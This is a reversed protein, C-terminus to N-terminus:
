MPLPAEFVVTFVTYLGFALTQAILGLGPLQKRNPEILIGGIAMVYLITLWRFDGWAFSLCVVYGLTFATSWLARPERFVPRFHRILVALGALGAFLGWGDFQASLAGLSLCLILTLGCIFQLFHSGSQWAWGVLFLAVAMMVFKQMDPVGEPQTFEVQAIQAETEALQEELEGGTRFIRECHIAEMQGKVYDTELAAHLADALVGIREAPTGKPVWWYFRNILTIDYGQELATPVDPIASNRERDLYALGILKRTGDQGERYRLFEELSFGTVDVHNGALDIFRENGGGSQPFQFKAGPVAQELLLGAVHTLAGRNVAFALEGPQERAAALLKELRDYDSGAAVAIVMGIEGTSAVPEFAESGYRVMGSYKATIIADHLLLMTYGDPPADRVYRSGITAGAGGRNQIVLPVPLLGRDEIAKKFIRAYADSGGGAGFPVVLKIPRAPYDAREPDWRSTLWVGGAFLLLNLGWLIRFRKANPREGNM